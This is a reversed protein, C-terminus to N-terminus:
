KDLGSKIILKEGEIEKLIEIVTEVPWDPTPLLSFKQNCSSAYIFHPVIFPGCKIKDIHTSFIRNKSDLRIKGTIVIKFYKDLFKLEGTIKLYVGSLFEKEPVENKFRIQVNRISDTKEYLLKELSQKSIILEPKFEELSLVVLENEQWIKYLNININKLEIRVKNMELGEINLLDSTIIIKKFHGKLSEEESCSFVQLRFNKSALIKSSLAEKIKEELKNLGFEKKLEWAPLAERKYVIGESGDPLPFHKSISFVKTFSPLQKKIEELPKMYKDTTYVPGLNGTKLILYDSFEGLPKSYGKPVVPLHNSTTYFKFAPSSFFEGNALVRTIIFDREINSTKLIFDFIEKHKWDQRYPPCCVNLHFKAFPTPFILNPLIAYSFLVYKALGVIVISYILIKRWVVKKLYPIWFVSILSVAPLFPLTYRQNKNSILTFILYPVIIWSTLIILNDKKQHNAKWERVFKVVGILFLIFFLFQVQRELNWFYFLFSEISLFYPDGEAPGLGATKICRQIVPVLNYLYWPGAIIFFFFIGLFFDKVSEKDIKKVLRFIVFLVPFLLFFLYTWKILIGVGSIIGFAITHKKKKFYDSRLLFYFGWTVTTTLPIDLLPFRSIYVLFQYMSVLFSALMGVRRDYFYSGLKYVGIILFAFYVILGMTALDQSVGFVLHIPVLSLHFFPPYYYSVKMFNSILDRSPHLFLELYRLSLGLHASQDWAPPRTDWILWIANNILHFLILLGLLFYDFLLDKKRFM